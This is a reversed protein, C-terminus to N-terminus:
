HSFRTSSTSWTSNSQGARSSQRLGPQPHWSRLQIRQDSSETSTSAAFSTLTNRRLVLSYHLRFMVSACLATRSARVDSHMSFAVPKKGSIPLSSAPRESLPIRGRIYLSSFRSTIFYIIISSSHLSSHNLLYLSIEPTHQLPIRNTGYRTQRKENALTM